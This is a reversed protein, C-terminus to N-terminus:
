CPYCAGHYDLYYVVLIILWTLIFSILFLFFTCTLTFLTILCGLSDIHSSLQFSWDIFDVDLHRLCICYGLMCWPYHYWSSKIHLWCDLLCVRFSLHTGMSRGILRWMQRLRLELKVRLFGWYLRYKTSGANESSTNGSSPM